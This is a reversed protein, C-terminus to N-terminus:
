KLPTIGQKPIYNFSTTCIKCMIVQGVISYCQNEQIYNRLAPFNKLNKMPYFIPM